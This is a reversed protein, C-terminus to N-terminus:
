KSYRSKYRQYRAEIMQRTDRMSAEVLPYGFWATTIGFLLGTLYRMFPISERYPLFSNVVSLPLQSILQSFGDLGMPILGLLLWLYWPLAPIRRGVVAFVVGFLLIGAYIAIDRQCLAVKYGVVDNGIFERAAWLDDPNNGSVDEYTLYGNINASERPYIIQEGFLFVSRFALQHCMVSYGRYILNAPGDLNSNMFIPALFPLALYIFVVFNFIALYYWSLWLSFRDGKTLGRQANKLNQDQADQISQRQLERDVAAALTIKLRQPDIPAELRYPGVILVPIKDFLKKNLKPHEDINIVDLTHPYDPMLQALEDVVDECLHCGPRSYLTLAIL